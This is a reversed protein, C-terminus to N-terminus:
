LDFDAWTNNGGWSATDEWVVRKRLEAVRDSLRTYWWKMGAMNYTAADQRRWNDLWSKITDLMSLM